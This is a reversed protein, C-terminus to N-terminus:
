GSVKAGNALVHRSNIYLATNETWIQLKPDKRLENCTYWSSAPDINLKSHKEKTLELLVLAKRFSAEPVFKTGVKTIPLWKNTTM